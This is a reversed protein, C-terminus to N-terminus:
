INKQTMLCTSTIKLVTGDYTMHKQEINTSLIFSQQLTTTDIYTGLPLLKNNNQTRKLTNTYNHQKRINAIFSVTKKGWFCAKM